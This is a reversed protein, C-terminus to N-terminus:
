NYSATINHVEAKFTTTQELKM